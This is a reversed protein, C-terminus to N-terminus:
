DAIESNLFLSICITLGTFLDIKLTWSKTNFETIKTTVPIIVIKMARFWGTRALSAYFITFMKEQVTQRRM